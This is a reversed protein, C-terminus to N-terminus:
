YKSSKLSEQFSITFVLGSPLNHTVKVDGMLVQTVLNYVVHLGLGVFGKHRKTTYFPEFIEDISKSPVGVGVDSFIMVVQHDLNSFEITVLGGKKESYGHVVANKTLQRLVEELVIPSSYMRLSPDCKIDFSISFEESFPKVINEIFARVHIEQIHRADDMNSLLKFHNVLARIRYFSKELLEIAQDEEQKFARLYSITMKKENIQNQLEELRYKLHSLVTIANGLPTNIEHAIGTILNGLSAMKESVILKNQAANLAVITEELAVTREHILMELTENKMYLKQLSTASLISIIFVVLMVVGNFGVLIVLSRNLDYFAEATTMSVILNWGNQLRSFGLIKNEGELNYQEVGRANNKITNALESLTGGEISQIQDKLTYKEHVLFNLDKDVLIVKGFVDAKECIDKLRNFDIDVGIVGVMEGGVRIPSIYSIMDLKVNANFYPKTWIPRKAEIPEYFWAVRERDGKDFLTIDTPVQKELLADGNTDVFFVGSTGTSLEPDFRVYFSTASIKNSQFSFGMKSFYPEFSDLYGVENIKKPDLLSEISKAATEVAAEMGIIISDIQHGYSKANEMLFVDTNLKMKGFLYVISFSSTTVVAAMTVIVTSLIVKKKLANM